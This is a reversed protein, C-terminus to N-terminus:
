RWVAGFSLTLVLPGAERVPLVLMAALRKSAFRAGTADISAFDVTLETGLYSASVDGGTIWPQLVTLTPAWAAGLVIGHWTATDDTSGLGLEGGITAPIQVLLVSSDGYQVQAGDTKLRQCLQGSVAPIGLPVKAYLLDLDLGGGARLGWWTSNNGPAPRPADRYFARGGVGAGVGQGRGTGGQAFSSAPALGTGTACSGTVGFSHMPLLATVVQERVEYQLAGDASARTAHLTGSVALVGTLLGRWSPLRRRSGPDKM